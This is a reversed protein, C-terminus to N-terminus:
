PCVCNIRTGQNGYEVAANKTLGVVAHKSAVYASGGPWGLAKLGCVSSMNVISGGPVLVKLQERMSYFIGSANIGMVIDWVDDPFEHLAKWSDGKSSVGAVNAAGDLRGFRNVTEEIWVKVQDPQSIDVTSTLINLGPNRASMEAAAEELATTQVDSLSLTAGRDALYNAVGLGIGSTAGSVAIVKNTFTLSAM